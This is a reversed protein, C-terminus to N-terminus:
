LPQGEPRPAPAHQPMRVQSCIDADTLAAYNREDARALQSLISLSYHKGNTIAQPGLM